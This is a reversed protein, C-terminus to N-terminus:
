RVALNRLITTVHTEAVDPRAFQGIAQGCSPTKVEGQLIIQKANLDKGYLNNNADDDSRLTSGDLSVGAFVGRNRSWSLIEAKM